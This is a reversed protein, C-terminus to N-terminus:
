INLLLDKKFLGIDDIVKKRLRRRDHDDEEDHHEWYDELEEESRMRYIIHLDHMVMSQPHIVSRNSPKSSGRKGEDGEELM